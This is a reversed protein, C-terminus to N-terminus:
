GERALKVLLLQGPALFNAARNGPRSDVTRAGVPDTATHMPVYERAFLRRFPKVDPHFLFNVHASQKRSLNVAAMYRVGEDDHFFSVLVPTPGSVSLVDRDGAFLPVGGKAERHVMYAGEITLRMFESGYERQFIRNETSLWQYTQTREGFENIPAERYNEGRGQVKSSMDVYFWCIGKAGMAAATSIQWRFDDVSAIVYHHHPVCLQTVNYRFGPRRKTLEMWERLNNFYVDEGQTRDVENQQSYCDYGIEPLTADDAMRDLYPAYAPSGITDAIWDYWPLLNLYWFKGPDIERCMKACACIGATMNSTPEDFLFFGSVAPHTGWDALASRVGARYAEANGDRMFEYCGGRVRSDNMLPKLGAENCLDLMHRVAAKDTKPTTGPMLPHTIGLDKWDKVVQEVPRTQEEFQMYTWCMIPYVAEGSRPSSAGVTVSENGWAGLAAVAAVAMVIMSKCLSAAASCPAVKGRTLGYTRIERM